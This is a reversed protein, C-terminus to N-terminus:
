LYGEWEKEIEVAHWQNKTRSEVATDPLCLVDSLCRLRWLWQM